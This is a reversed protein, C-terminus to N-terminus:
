WQHLWKSTSVDALGLYPHGLLGGASHFDFLFRPENYALVLPRFGCRQLKQLEEPSWIMAKDAPPFLPRRHARANGEVVGIRSRAAPRPASQDAALRIAWGGDIPEYCDVAAASPPAAYVFPALASAAMLAAAWRNLTPRFM